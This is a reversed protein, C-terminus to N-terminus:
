PKRGYVTVSLFTASAEWTYLAIRGRDPGSWPTGAAPVARADGLACEPQAGLNGQAPHMQLRIRYVDDPPLANIGIEITASLAMHKMWLDLGTRTGGVRYCAVGEPDGTASTFMYAGANLMSGSGSLDRIWVDITPLEVLGIDMHALQIRPNVQRVADDQQVWNGGTVPTWHQSFEALSDFAVIEDGATTPHPDCADGVDDRDEDDQDFNTIAPCNDIADDVRDGDEDHNALAVDVPADVVPPRPTLGFVSDCGALV